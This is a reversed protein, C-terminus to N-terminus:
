NLNYLGVHQYTPIYVKGKEPFIDLDLMNLNKGIYNKQLTLDTKHLNMLLSSLELVHSDEHKVSAFLYINEQDEKIMRMAIIHDDMMEKVINGSQKNLLIMKNAVHPLQEKVYDRRVIIFDDIVCYFRTHEPYHFLTNGTQLDIAKDNAYLHITKQHDPTNQIISHAAVFQIPKATEWVFRKEPLYLLTGEGSDTYLVQYGNGVSYGSYHVSDPMEWIMKGTGREMYFFSLNTEELRAIFIGQSLDEVRTEQKEPFRHQWQIDGNLSIEIIKDKNAAVISQRDFLIEPNEMQIHKDWIISGSYPDIRILNCTNDEKYQRVLLAGTYGDYSKLIDANDLDEKKWRISGSEIDLSNIEGQTTVYCIDDMVVQSLVAFDSDSPPHEWQQHLTIESSFGNSIRGFIFSSAFHICIIGCAFLLAWSGIAKLLPHTTVVLTGSLQDHFGMRRKRFPIVFYGVLPFIFLFAILHYVTRVFTSILEPVNGAPDVVKLGLMKQGLTRGFRHPLVTFYYCAFVVFWLQGMFVPLATHIPTNFVVKLGYNLGYGLFATIMCIFALDIIGAVIRVGLGAYHQGHLVDSPDDCSATEEEKELCFDCFVRDNKMTYCAECLATNCVACTRVAANQSHNYCVSLHHSHGNQYHFVGQEVARKIMFKRLKNELLFISKMNLLRLEEGRQNVQVM